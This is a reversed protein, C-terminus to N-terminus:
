SIAYYFHHKVNDYSENFDGMLVVKGKLEGLVKQTHKIQELFFKRKPMGLHISVVNLKLSPFYVVVMGGGGGLHNELPWEKYKLQRGKVKSAVLELVRLGSYKTKHGRGFYFYKYGLRRLGGIVEDEQGELIEIIGQVDAGIKKVVSFTSELNTREWVRDPSAQYHVMWHGLVNGWFSRGDLGFMQNYIAVRM